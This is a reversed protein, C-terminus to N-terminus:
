VTTLVVREALFHLRENTGMLVLLWFRTIADLALGHPIPLTKEDLMAVVASRYGALVTTIACLGIDDLRADNCLFKAGLPHMATKISLTHGHKGWDQELHARLLM